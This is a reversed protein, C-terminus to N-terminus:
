FLNNNNLNNLTENKWIQLKEKIELIFKQISNIFWKINNNYIKFKYENENDNSFNLTVNKNRDNYDKLIDEYNKQFLIIEELCKCVMWFIGKNYINNKNNYNDENEALKIKLTKIENELSNKQNEFNKAIKLANDVLEIGKPNGKNNSNKKVNDKLNSKTKKLDKKLHSITKQAVFENYPSKMVIQRKLKNIEESNKAKLNKIQKSYYDKWIKNLSSLLSNLISDSVTLNNNNKFDQVLDYAENPVYSNSIENSNYSKNSFSKNNINSVNNNNIKINKLLKTGNLNSKSKAFDKFESTNKLMELLRINDDKLHEIELLLSGESEKQIYFEDIKKELESIKEIQKQNILKQQELEDKFTMNNKQNIENSKIQYKITEDKALLQQNLKELIKNNKEIENNFKENNNKITVNLNNNINQLNNIICNCEEIKQNYKNINFNQRSIQEKLIDNEEQFSKLKDVVKIKQENMINMRTELLEIKDLLESIRKEYSLNKPKYIINNSNYNNNNNNNNTNEFSSEINNSNENDSRYNNNYEEM